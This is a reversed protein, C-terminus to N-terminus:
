AGKRLLANIALYGYICLLIGVVWLFAKIGNGSAKGPRYDEIVGWAGNFGHFVAIPVFLIYFIGWWGSAQLRDTVVKFDLHWESTLHLVKLHMILFFALFLGTIRQLFWGYAGGSSVREDM